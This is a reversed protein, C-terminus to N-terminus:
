ASKRTKTGSRWHNRCFGKAEAVNTCGDVSCETGGFEWNRLATKYCPSCLKRRLTKTQCGCRGCTKLVANKRRLEDIKRKVEAAKKAAADAERRLADECAKKLNRMYSVPIKADRGSAIRRDHLRKGADIAWSPPQYEDQREHFDIDELEMSWTMRSRKGRDLMTYHTPVAPSNWRNQDATWSGNDYVYGDRVVVMHRGAAVMYYGTPHDKIWQNLTPPQTVKRGYHYTSTYYRTSGSIRLEKLAAYADGCSVGVWPGNSDYSIGVILARITDTSWGTIAAIAAPVCWRDRGFIRAFRSTM